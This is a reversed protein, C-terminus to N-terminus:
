NVAILEVEFVLTAGGPINPPSGQDRYAIDSPCVLQSKGGVKMKQVGETWCPIVGNLPFEAPGGHKASADFELGNILAGRYNVKVKDTPKPSAGTGAKLERYVLGTPTRVAGKEKAATDQYAKGRAKEKDPIAASRSKALGEIKPEWESLTIAPKNNAADNLAQRVIEVEAPTLDFFSTLQRSMSLGVAYITKQEDTTLKVPSAAVPAAPNAAAAPAPEPTPAAPAAAAPAAPPTAPASKETSATEPKPASSCGALLIGLSLTAVVSFRRM